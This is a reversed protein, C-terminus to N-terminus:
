TDFVFRRATKDVIVYKDGAALGVTQCPDTDYPSSYIVIGAITLNVRHALVQIWASPSYTADQPWVFIGMLTFQPLTGSFGKAAFMYGVAGNNRLLSLEVKAGSGTSTASGTIYVTYKGARIDRNNDLDRIRRTLYFDSTTEVRIQNEGIDDVTGTGSPIWGPTDFGFIKSPYYSASDLSLLYDIGTNGDINYRTGRNEGSVPILWCNSLDINWTRASDRATWCDLIETLTYVGMGLSLPDWWFPRDFIFSPTDWGPIVWVYQDTNLSIRPMALKTGDSLTIVNVSDGVKVPEIKQAFAFDTGAGYVVVKDGVEVVM